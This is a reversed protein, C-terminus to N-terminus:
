PESGLRALLDVVLKFGAVTGLIILVLMWYSTGLISDLWSGILWGGLPGAVLSIPISLGVALGRMRKHTDRREREERRREEPTPKSRKFKFRFDM